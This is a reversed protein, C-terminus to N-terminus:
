GDVVAFEVTAFPKYGPKSLSLMYMGPELSQMYFMGGEGTEKKINGPQITALAGRAAEMKGDVMARVWVTLARTTTAPDVLARVSDWADGLEQNTAALVRVLRDMTDTLLTNTQTILRAVELTAAKREGIAKQVSGQVAQWTAFLANVDAIAAADFGYAALATGAAQAEDLMLLVKGTFSEDGMKDLMAETVNVGADGTSQAWAGLAGALAVVRATVDARDEGKDDAVGAIDAEQDSVATELGALLGNFTATADAMPVLASYEATHAALFAKVAQFM